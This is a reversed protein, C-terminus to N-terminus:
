CLKQFIKEKILEFKQEKKGHLHIMKNKIFENKLFTALDVNFKEIDNVDINIKNYIEEPISIIHNTDINFNNKLLLPILIQEFTVALLWSPSVLATNLRILNKKRLISFDLIEECVSNIEVFKQGGVISFNSSSFEKDKLKNTPYINFIRQVDKQVGMNKNIWPEEYLCFFDQTEIESTLKEFLFFDFDLHIFPEKVLSMALIKGLSWIKPYFQSLVDENFLIVEDYSINSALNELGHIDTYLCTKYGSKKAVDNAAKAM